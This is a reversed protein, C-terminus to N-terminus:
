RPPFDQLARHRVVAARATVQDSKLSFGQSAYLKSLETLASFLQLSTSQSDHDHCGLSELRAVVSELLSVAGAVDGSSLLDEAEESWNTSAIVLGNAATGLEM